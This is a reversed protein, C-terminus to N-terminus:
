RAAPGSKNYGDARGSRCELSDVARYDHWVKLDCIIQLTCGSVAMGPM